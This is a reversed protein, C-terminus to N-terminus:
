HNFFGCLAVSVAFMVSILV